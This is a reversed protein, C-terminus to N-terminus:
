RRLKFCYEENKNTKKNQIKIDKVYQVFRTQISSVKRKVGKRSLHYIFPM